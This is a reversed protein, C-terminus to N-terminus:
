RAQRAATLSGTSSRDALRDLQSFHSKGPKLIREGREERWKGSEELEFAFNTIFNLIHLYIQFFNCFLLYTKFKTFIVKTETSTM